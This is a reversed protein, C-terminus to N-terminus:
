QPLFVEHQAAPSACPRGNWLGEVARTLCAAALIWFVPELSIRYRLGIGGIFTLGAYTLLCSVAVCRWLLRQPREARLRVAFAGCAALLILVSSSLSGVLNRTSSVPERLELGLLALPIKVLGTHIVDAPKAIMYRVARNVFYRNAEVENMASTRAFDDQMRDENLRETQGRTLIAERASPYVSEWLTIGDHSSGFTFQGLVGYNRYGWAGLALAMGAIAGFAELRISRLPKVIFIAAAVALLLLQSSSRTISAYGALAAILTVRLPRRWLVPGGRKDDLAALLLAFVSWELAAGFFTDDWVPGHLLVFPQLAAVFGTLAAVVPGYLKLAVYAAAFVLLVTFPVHIYRLGGAPIYRLCAAIFLPEGPLQFMLLPTNRAYAGSGHLVGECATCAYGGTAALNRAIATSANPTDFAVVVFRAAWLQLALCFLAAGAPAALRAKALVRLTDTTL